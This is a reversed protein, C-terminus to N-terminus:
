KDMLIEELSSSLIQVFETLSINKETEGITLADLLLQELMQMCGQVKINRNITHAYTQKTSSNKLKIGRLDMERKVIWVIEQEKPNKQLKRYTHILQERTMKKM